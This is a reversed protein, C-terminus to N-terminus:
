GEKREKISYSGGIDNIAHSMEDEKSENSKDDDKEIKDFCIQREDIKCGNVAAM